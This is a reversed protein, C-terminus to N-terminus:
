GLIWGRSLLAAASLIPTAMGGGGREGVLGIVSALTPIDPRGLCATRAGRETAGGAIAGRSLLAAAKRMPKATVWGGVRREDDGILRLVSASSPMEPTGLRALIRGGETSAGLMWGRSLLAAASRM